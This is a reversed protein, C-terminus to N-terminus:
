AEVVVSRLATYKPVNGVLAGIDGAVVLQGGAVALGDVQRRDADRGVADLSLVALEDRRDGLAAPGLGVDRRHQGGVPHQGAEVLPEHWRSRCCAPDPLTTTMSTRGSACMRARGTCGRSM